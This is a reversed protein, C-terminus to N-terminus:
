RQLPESSSARYVQIQTSNTLIKKDIFSKAIKRTLSELTEDNTTVTGLYPVMITDDAQVTVRRDISDVGAEVLLVEGPRIKATSAPPIENQKETKIRNLKERAMYAQAEMEKADALHTLRDAEPVGTQAARMRLAKARLEFAEYMMAWYAKSEQSDNLGDNGLSPRNPQRM